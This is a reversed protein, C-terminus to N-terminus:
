GKLCPVHRIPKPMWDGEWQKWGSREQEEDEASDGDLDEAQESKALTEGVSTEEPLLLPEIEGFLESGVRLPTRGTEDGVPLSANFLPGWHHLSEGSSELLERALRYTWFGPNLFCERILTTKIDDFDHRGQHIATWEESILIHLLWQHSADMLADRRIHRESPYTLLASLGTVLDELFHVLLQDTFRLLLPDFIAFAGTMPISATYPKDNRLVRAPFILGNDVLTSVLVKSSMHGRLCPQICIRCAEEAHMSGNSITAATSRIEAKRSAVYSEIANRFETRLGAEDSATLLPLKPADVDRWYHDWLWELAAEVNRRLRELNPVEKHTAEHRFEVFAAPMGIERAVDHMPRRRDPSDCYGTVFSNKRNVADRREDVSDDGLSYLQRRVLILERQKPDPSADRRWPASM